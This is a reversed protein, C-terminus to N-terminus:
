LFSMAHDGSIIGGSGFIEIDPVFKAVDACKRLAFPRLVSGTTGGASYQKAKGVPLFPEGSPLPDILGPMTNTLTVAKAGNALAADALIEAQGYNPTIKVIVPLTTHSTVWKTIKGLIVPDEGCARGMGKENM